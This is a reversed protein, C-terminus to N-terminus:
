HSPNESSSEAKTDRRDITEVKMSELQYNRDFEVRDIELIQEPRYFKTKTELQHKGAEFFQQAQTPTFM